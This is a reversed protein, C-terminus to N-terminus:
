RSGLARELAWGLAFLVAGAALGKFEIGMSELGRDHLGLSVSWFVGVLIVLLGAAELLKALGWLARAKM